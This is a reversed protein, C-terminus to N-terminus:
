PKKILASRIHKSRARNRGLTKDPEEWPANRAVAQNSVIVTASRLDFKELKKFLEMMESGCGKRPILSASNFDLSVHKIGLQGEVMLRIITNWDKLDSYDWPFIKLHIQRIQQQKLRQLSLYFRLCTNPTFFSFTNRFYLVERAELYIQRCSRLLALKNSCFVNTTTGCAIHRDHVEQIDPDKKDRSAIPTPDELVREAERESIEACCIRNIMVKEGSWAEFIHITEGAICFEYIQDKIEPPLQLLPTDSNQRSSLMTLRQTYYAAPPSSVHNKAGRREFAAGM